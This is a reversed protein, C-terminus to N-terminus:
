RGATRCGVRARARHELPRRTRGARARAAGTRCWVPPSRARGPGHRGRRARALRPAFRRVSRCARGRTLDPRAGRAGPAAAVAAAGARLGPPAAGAALGLHLGPGAAVAEARAGRGAPHAPRHLCRVRHGRAPRAGVGRGGACPRRASDHDTLLVLPLRTPSTRPSGGSSTAGALAFDRVLATPDMARPGLNAVPIGAGVPAGEGAWARIDGTVFADDRQRREADRVLGALAARHWEPPLELRAGEARAAVQLEEVVDSPVRCHEYPERSTRRNRSPPMCGSSPRRRSTAGGSACRPSGARAPEPGPLHRTHTSRRLAALALRLNLLAAGCSMLLERGQPDLHTLGREPDAMVDIFDDHAHFRWPQTNLVSPARVAAGVASTLEEYSLVSTM